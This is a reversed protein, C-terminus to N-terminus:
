ASVLSGIENQVLPPPRDLTPALLDGSINAGGGDAVSTFAFCTATPASCLIADSVLGSDYRWNFAFWPGRRRVQHYQLHTTQNFIEDHDIRFVSNGLPIIRV